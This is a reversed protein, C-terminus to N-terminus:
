AGREFTIPELGDGAVTVAGDEHYTTSYTRRLVNQIYAMQKYAELKPNSASVTQGHKGAYMVKFPSDSM